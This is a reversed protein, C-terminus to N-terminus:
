QFFIFKSHLTNLEAKLRTVHRNYESALPRHLTKSFDSHFHMQRNFDKPVCVHNEREPSVELVLQTICSYMFSANM